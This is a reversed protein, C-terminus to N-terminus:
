KSTDYFSTQCRLNHNVDWDILLVRKLGYKKISLSVLSHEINNSNLFIVGNDISNDQIQDILCLCSGLALSDTKDNQYSETLIKKEDDNLKRGKIIFHKFNVTVV